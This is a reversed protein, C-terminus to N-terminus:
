VHYGDACATVVTKIGAKKIMAMNMKAQKLFEKEYGMQYARGGCCTEMDGAIGFNVKAKKLIQATAKAIKHMDKNYSTLCGVHFLM